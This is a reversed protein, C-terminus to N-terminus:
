EASERNEAVIDELNERQQLVFDKGREAARTAADIIEKRYKYVAYGAAAGLSFVVIPHKLIRSLMSRGAQTSATAAAGKAVNHFSLAEPAAKAMGHVMGAMMGHEAMAAGTMHPVAGVAAKTGHVHAM